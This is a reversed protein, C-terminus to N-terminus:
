GPPRGRAPRGQRHRREALCRARLVGGAGQLARHAGAALRAIARRGAHPRPAARRGRPHSRGPTRGAVGACLAAAVDPHETLLNDVELPAIKIGGRSVMDKARGVLAVLGGAAAQALDGTKFFGDAFAAATLQPEDLYGLMGFPTRIQLEGSPAIRYDVGETPRGISGFGQPQDAPALCFDCAGTETLGYLDYIAAPTLGRLKAALSPALAEGGTLILRLKPPAADFPLARLMSPVAALVGADALAQALTARNASPMLALRAGKALALLMVWLGFIFTMQLPLVVSDDARLGLLRDLVALKAAFRQHAIVVGKPLGTSGSTFIILAADRLLERQPPRARGIVSLKDGDVLFRAVTLAQVRELTAAAASVHVPVAVGGANWIGLLAGIDAPRNGMRVHVPECAAIGAAALAGEVRRALALLAAPAQAEDQAGAIPHDHAALADGLWGALAGSM